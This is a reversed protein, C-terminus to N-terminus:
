YIKISFYCALIVCKQDIVLSLHRVIYVIKVLQWKEDVIPNEMM